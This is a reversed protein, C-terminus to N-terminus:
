PLPIGASRIALKVVGKVVDSVTASGLSEGWRVLKDRMASNRQAENAMDKAVQAQSADVTSGEKQLQELLDQIQTAAQALNQSMNIYNGQIYSGGGTDISEYYSGGGTNIHRSDSMTVSESIATSVIPRVSQWELVNMLNTNERRYSQIEIDKLKLQSRYKDELTQCFFEYQVKIFKEIASKDSDPPVSVRIVFDGNGKNEIAEIPLDVGNNEIKFRLFSNLLAEWDIGNQFILDVTIFTRSVLLKFDGFAFYDNESSPRREQYDEGDGASLYIYKCIIDDLKTHININWDEVCAGSFKAQTFDTGLAQLASLNAGEFNAKIFSAQTVNARNLNAFKFNTRSFNASSLDAMKLDAGLLNAGYVDSAHLNAMTLSARTLIAQNLDSGSIDCKILTANSLNTRYLISNSLDAQYLNIGTLDAESFDVKIRQNEQRWKNWRDVGKEIQALHELNAM